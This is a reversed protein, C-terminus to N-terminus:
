MYRYVFVIILHHWYYTQIKLKPSMVHCQSCGEAWRRALSGIHDVGQHIYRSEYKRPQGGLPIIRTIMRTENIKLWQANCVEQWSDIYSTVSQVPWHYGLTKQLVRYSQLWSTGVSPFKSSRPLMALDTLPYITDFM